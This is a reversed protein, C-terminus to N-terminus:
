RPKGESLHGNAQTVFPLSAADYRAAGLIVAVVNPNIHWAERLAPNRQIERASEGSVYPPLEPVVKKYSQPLSFEWVVDGAENLELVRSRMAESTLVHGGPLFQLNGYAYNFFPHAKNGDYHWRVGMTVPDVRLLRSTERTGSWLGLNDLLGISGDPQFSAAHQRKWIGRSAWIVKGTGADIVALTNLNRISVLLDGASFQPFAAALSPELPMVSNAHTLDWPKQEPDIQYLLSEFPTGEFADLLPYRRQPKGSADLVQVSDALVPYHLSTLGPHADKLIEQTLAYITGDTPSVYLHHHTLGPYRWLIKANKDMKVMGYGYPTNGLGTYIALLDGNPYAHAQEISIRDQPVPHELHRPTPWVTRFPLHWRYAVKGAADILYVAASYRVTLLTYGTTHGSVAAHAFADDVTQAETSPSTIRERWAAGADLAGSVWAAPRWEGRQAVIGAFFALLLGALAALGRM